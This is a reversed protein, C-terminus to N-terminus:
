LLRRPFFGYGDKRGGDRVNRRDPRISTELCSFTSKEGAPTGATVDGM